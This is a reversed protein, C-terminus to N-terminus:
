MPGSKSNLVVTACQESYVDETFRLGLHCEALQEKCPVGISLLKKERVWFSAKCHFFTSHRQYWASCEACASCFM